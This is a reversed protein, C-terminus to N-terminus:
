GKIGCTLFIEIEREATKGNEDTKREHVVIREVFTHLVEPTLERIDAYMQAAKVFRDVRAANEKRASLATQRRGIDAELAKREDRYHASLEYYQEEDMAHKLAYEEFLRNTLTTLETLRKEAAGIEKVIRKASQEDAANLEALAAEIFAEPHERISETVSRLVALVLKEVINASVYHGTCSEKGFRTFTSCIYAAEGRHKRSLYMRKGCDSCYILHAFKDVQGTKPPRVRGQLITQVTDFTNKDIIAEHTGPTIVWESQPTKRQKKSKFSPKVTKGAVTAGTYEQNHLIRRIATPSWDYPHDPVAKGRKTAAYASPNMVRANKLDRAIRCLNQDTLFESFIFTVNDRVNPDPTIHNKRNPDKMYGYPPNVGTHEGHTKKYDATAKIRKSTQGVYLENVANLLPIMDVGQGTATDVSSDACMLRVGLSRLEDLLMTGEGSSRGFRSIDKVVITSVGGSRVDRMMRQFEPRNFTTGSYGDDIYFEFQGLGHKDAYDALIHRQTTISNSEGEQGDERSLRCYLATKTNTPNTKM